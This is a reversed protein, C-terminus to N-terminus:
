IYLLYTRSTEDKRMLKVNFKEVLKISSVNDNKVMFMLTKYKSNNCLWDVFMKLSDKMIEQGRYKESIMLSVDLTTPFTRVALIAGVMTNDIEIALYFDNVCDGKEYVEITEVAETVNHVYAYPIYKEITSDNYVMKYFDYADEGSFSRLTIKNSHIIM